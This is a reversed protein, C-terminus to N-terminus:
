ELKFIIPLTMQVRVAKGRQKGPNWIPANKVVNMAEEDCGAGIGKMCRVDTLTGDKDVIFRLIVRGEIGARRAQAPYKLNESVYKYFAKLGGVPEPQKEVFNFVEDVDEELNDEFILEEIKTDETIEVDLIVDIEEEIIKEDPVEIVLPQILKPKPPPHVTAPIEILDNFDVDMDNLQVLNGEGYFKWEFASIVLLLSICLGLVFAMRSFNKQAAYKIEKISIFESIPKPLTTLQSKYCITTKDKIHQIQSAPKRNPNEKKTEM